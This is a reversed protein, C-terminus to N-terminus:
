NREAGDYMVCLKEVCETLTNCASVTPSLVFGTEFVTLPAGVACVAEGVRHPLADVDKARQRFEETSHDALFESDCSRM